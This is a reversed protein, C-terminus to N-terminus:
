SSSSGSSRTWPRRPRWSTGLRPHGPGIAYTSSDSIIGAPSQLLGKALVAAGVVDFALGYAQRAFTWWGMMDIALLGFLVSYVALYVPFYVRFARRFAERPVEVEEPDGEVWRLFSYLRDATWDLLQGFVM